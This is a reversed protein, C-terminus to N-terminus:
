ALLREHFQSRNTYSWNRSKLVAPLHQADCRRSCSRQDVEPSSGRTIDWRPELPVAVKSTFIFLTTAVTHWHSIRSSLVENVLIAIIMRQRKSDYGRSTGLCTSVAGNGGGLDRILTTGRRDWKGGLLAGFLLGFDLARLHLRYRAAFSFIWSLRSIHSCWLSVRLELHM